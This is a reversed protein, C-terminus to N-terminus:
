NKFKSKIEDDSVRQYSAVAKIRNWKETKFDFLNLTMDLDFSTTGNRKLSHIEGYQETSEPNNNFLLVRGNKDPEYSYNMFRDVYGM